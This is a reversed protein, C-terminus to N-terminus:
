ADIKAVRRQHRGGEFSTDLFADLCDLAVQAGVVRAGLALVNADNHARAMVATTVDHCLAARVGNHRNAAMSVGIGTGCVVVGVGAEGSAVARALDHARDPYDVPDPTAAGLDRVEVGREVLAAKLTEKLAFGAHDCALAVTTVPM